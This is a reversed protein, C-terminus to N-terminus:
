RWYMICAMTRMAGCYADLDRAAGPELWPFAHFTGPTGSRSRTTALWAGFCTSANDVWLARATGRAAVTTSLLQSVQLFALFVHAAMVCKGANLRVAARAAVVNTPRRACM